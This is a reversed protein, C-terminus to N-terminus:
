GSENTGPILVQYWGNVPETDTLFLRAGKKIKQIVASGADPSRRINANIIIVQAIKQKGSSNSEALTSQKSSACVVDFYCESVSDPIVTTWPSSGERDICEGSPAYNTSEIVRFKKEFCQWEVLTIKYSRDSYVEKTWTQKRNGSERQDSKELYSISGNANRGIFQRRNQQARATQNILLVIVFIIIISAGKKMDM